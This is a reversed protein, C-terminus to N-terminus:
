PLLREAIAVPDAPALAGPLALGSNVYALPLRTACALEVVAGVHETADAHTMAIGTPRLPALRELLEQAVAAGLTAPVALNVEDLELPALQGRLAEVAAADGPSVAPTDLVVIAEGRLEALRKAAREPQALAEVRVGHPKLLATLEAGGDAPALTLCAVPIASGQAYAAALGACCRTKGSGGAGVFAVVRGGIRPPAPIPIRRALATRAAAAVDAGPTFPLVHATADRLLEETAAPALGRAALREAVAAAEPGGASRRPTTLAGRRRRGFLSRRPPALSPRGSAAAGQGGAATPAADRPPAAAAASAADRAGTPAGDRPVAATPAADRPPAADDTAAPADAPPAAGVRAAIAAALELAQTTQPGVGGEAPPEAAAPAPSAAAAKAPRPADAADASAAGARGASAEGERAARAASAAGARGAGAASAARARRADARAARARRADARAARPKAAARAGGRGAAGAAARRKAAARRATRGAAAGRARAAAPAASAEAAASGDATPAAAASEAPAGGGAPAAPAADAAADAAAAAGGATVVPEAREEAAALQRAFTDSHERLIEAPTRAGGNGQRLLEAASLGGAAGAGAAGGAGAADGADDAAERSGAADADATPPAPRAPEEDYLDIRRAGPRAQVEVFQQQFFGGIGGMLGERQRVVVADPGLEARIQPLVEELSRGRFTRLAPDAPVHGNTRPRDDVQSSM